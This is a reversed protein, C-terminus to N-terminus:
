KEELYDEVAQHVSDTLQQTTALAGSPLPLTEGHLVLGAKMEEALNLVQSVNTPIANTKM